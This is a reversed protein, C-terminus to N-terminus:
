ISKKNNVLLNALNAIMAANDGCYKKDVLIVKNKINNIQKRLLSNAAVGGGIVVFKVKYKSLYYILKILLEDICWKLVSSAILVKDIKQKKMKLSNVYNSVHTKLGSLSFPENPLYHHIMKLNDKNPDYIRNISIGGPYPLSLIRGIKDLCEGIADDQADNLVKYKNLSKFLYITTHGGSADLCLFPYKILKNNDISFSYAHALMHDIKIIPKNLLFSLTKAFVKGIHLSGPLGPFATYAIYDLNNLDFKTANTLEDLLETIVDAHNRAALEPVIGGYKLHLDNRTITKNFIIKNDVLLALSTDDCSTEIALINNCKRKKM